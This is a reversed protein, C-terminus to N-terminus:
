VPTSIEYHLNIGREANTVGAVKVTTGDAVVVGCAIFTGM